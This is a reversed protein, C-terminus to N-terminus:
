GQGPHAIMLRTPTGSPQPDETPIPTASPDSNQRGAGSGTWAPCCRTIATAVRSTAKPRSRREDADRRRRAGDARPAGRAEVGAGEHQSPRGCGNLASRAISDIVRFATSASSVSGFLEAQDRLVGMDALCDGGDALMVMLDRLVVGPDHASRRERTPAMADSLARTLGLRDATGALLASGAHGVQGTGDARVDCMYSTLLGERQVM